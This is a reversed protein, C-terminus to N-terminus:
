QFCPGWPMSIGEISGSKSFPNLVQLPQWGAGGTALANATVLAGGILGNEDFTMAMQDFDKESDRYWRSGNNWNVAKEQPDHYQVGINGAPSIYPFLGTSAGWGNVESLITTDSNILRSVKYPNGAARLAMTALTFDAAELNGGSTLWMGRKPRGYALNRLFWLMCEGANNLATGSGDGVSEVGQVDATWTHASQDTTFKLLTWMQGGRLLHVVGTYPATGAPIRVGDQYARLVTTWGWSVLGYFTVNDVHTVPCSGTNTIGASDHLGIIIPAGQGLVSKNPALPWDEARIPKKVASGLITDDSRLTLQYVKESALAWSALVGTFSMSDLVVGNEIAVAKVVVPARLANENSAVITGFDDDADDLTITMEPLRLSNGLDFGGYVPRSAQLIKPKYTGAPIVSGVTSNFGGDANWGWLRTGSYPFTFQAYRYIQAM